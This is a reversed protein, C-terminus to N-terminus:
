TVREIGSDRVDRGEVPGVPGGLHTYVARVCARVRARVCPRECARVSARVCM